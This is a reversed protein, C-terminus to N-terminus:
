NSENKLLELPKLVIIGTHKKIKNIYEPLPNKSIQVKTGESPAHLLYIRGDDKRYAICTHSIDLGKINTVFAILDGNHIENEIKSVKDKPIYFYERESIEAEQKKIVPFFEPNEKLQKYSQPHSSMFNLEFKVAEGGLDKTIDKIIGKKQNDFIWDSFYHLRSPYKDMIGNRYRINTLENQYDEFSTEGSKICRALALVTELFTTCDLGSFNIVLKEDGSKELASAEYDTGIFSEGIETIVDGIPKGALNKEVALQFKSSCIEVDKESYIQAFSYNAALIFIGSLCRSLDIGVM